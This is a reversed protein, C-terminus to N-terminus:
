QAVLQIARQPYRHSVARVQAALGDLDTARHSSFRDVTSTQEGFVRDDIVRCSPGVAGCHLEWIGLRLVLCVPGLGLDQDAVFPGVLVGLKAEDLSKTYAAEDLAVGNSSQISELVRANRATRDAEWIDM